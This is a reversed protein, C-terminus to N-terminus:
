INEVAAEMLDGHCGHLSTVECFGAAIVISTRVPFGVAHRPLVLLARDSQVVSQVVVGPRDLM